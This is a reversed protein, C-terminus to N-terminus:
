RDKAARLHPRVAHDRVRCRHRLPQGRLVRDVRSAFSLAARWPRLGPLEALRAPARRRHRTRRAGPDSAAGRLARLAIRAHATRARRAAAARRRDLGVRGAIPPLRRAEAAVANGHSVARARSRRSACKARTSSTSCRGAPARFCAACPLRPNTSGRTCTSGCPESACGLAPPIWGWRMLPSRDYVVWSAALSALVWFGALGTALYLGARVEPAVPLGAVM